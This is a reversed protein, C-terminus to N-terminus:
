AAEILVYGRRLCEQLRDRLERVVRDCLDPPAQCGCPVGGGPGYGTPQSVACRLRPPVERPIAVCLDHGACRRGVLKVHCRHTSM